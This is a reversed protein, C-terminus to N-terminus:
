PVVDHDGIGSEKGGDFLVDILVLSLGEGDIFGKGVEHQASLFDIAQAVKVFPQETDPLFIAVDGPTIMLFKALFQGIVFYLAKFVKRIVTDSGVFWRVDLAMGAGLVAQEVPIEHLLFVLRVRLSEAAHEFM